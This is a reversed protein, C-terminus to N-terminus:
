TKLKKLEKELENLRNILDPLKRFGVYSRQYLGIEFAPSGWVKEGDKLSKGIGSQAGIKVDDGIRLHGALGVQGGFMCNKGIKTSGAIGTQSAIVTNEGVECNHAIQILNDLKVGKKIVTSGLTARDICANAGIEVHDEIVVNGIQAVKNYQNESNPAFGFGDAGLVVGAHIVCDVGIKTDSYLKCGAYIVTGKKIVVNDGIYTNPYIKVGDEIVSGNGIYTFAGLYVEKGIVVNEAIFVPDEVGSKDNKLHNYYDLLRAFSEYANDVRILTLKKPLPKEPAFSKNVIVITAKTSYIFSEYKPNALFSLTGPKGDEIKSLENVVAKEDGEVTGQLIEAINFSTFEM